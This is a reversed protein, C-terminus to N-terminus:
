LNYLHDYAMNKKNKGELDENFVNGLLLAEAVPWQNQCCYIEYNEFLSIIYIYIYMIIYIYIYM